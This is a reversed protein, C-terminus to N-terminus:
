VLIGNYLTDRFERLIQIKRLKQPLTNGVLFPLQRSYNGIEEKSLTAKLLVKM